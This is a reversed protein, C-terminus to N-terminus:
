ISFTSSKADGATFFYDFSTGAQPVTFRFAGDTTSDATMENVQWNGNKVRRHVRASSPIVGEVKVIMAVPKGEAVKTNGPEVNKAPIRTRTYPEIDSIPLLVRTLGNFFRPTMAGAYGA